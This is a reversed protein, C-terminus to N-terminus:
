LLQNRNGWTQKDCTDFEYSKEGTHIISHQNLDSVLSAKDCTDCEHSKDGTHIISHQNLYSDLSAKDFTDM